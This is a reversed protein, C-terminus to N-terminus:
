LNKKTIVIKPSPILIVVVLSLLALPVFCAFFIIVLLKQTRNATESKLTVHDCVEGDDLTIEAGDVENIYFLGVWKHSTKRVLDYDNIKVSRAGVAVVDISVWRDDHYNIISRVYYSELLLSSIDTVCSTENTWLTLTKTAYMHFCAAHGDMAYVTSDNDARILWHDDGGFSTM